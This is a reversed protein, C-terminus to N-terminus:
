KFYTSCASLVVKHCKVAQGEDTTLTVDVFSETQLLHDFVSTLNSQYNSWRLCYQGGNDCLSPDLPQQQQQQQHQQQQQKSNPPKTGSQHLDLSPNNNNAAAAVAAEEPPPLDSIDM